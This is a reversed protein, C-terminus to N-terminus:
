LKKAYMMIKFVAMGLCFCIPVVGLALSMSDKNDDTVPVFFCGIGMLIMPLSWIVLQKGGFANIAYWNAESEFSKKVRIGYIHNMKIKGLILPVSVAIILFASGINIWGFIANPAM